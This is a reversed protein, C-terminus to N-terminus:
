NLKLQELYSYIKKAREIDKSLKDIYTELASALEELKSSYTTYFSYKAKELEALICPDELRPYLKNLENFLKSTEKYAEESSIEGRSAKKFIKDAKEIINYAKESLELAEDESGAEALYRYWQLKLNFEREKKILTKLYEEASDAIEVSVEGITDILSITERSMTEMFKSYMADGLSVAAAIASIFKGAGLSLVTLVISAVFKINDCISKVKKKYHCEEIFREMNSEASKAIGEAVKKEEIVREYIEKLREKQRILKELPDEGDVEILVSDTISGDVGQIGSDYIECKLLIFCPEKPAIYAISQGCKTVLFGGSDNSELSKAEWYFGVWDKFHLITSTSKSKGRCWVKLVDVDEGEAKFVTLQRPKLKFLTLCTRGEKVLDKVKQLINIKNEVTKLRDKLFLYDKYKRKFDHYIYSLDKISEYQLLKNLLSFYKEKFDSVTHLKKKFERLSYALILVLPADFHSVRHKLREIEELLYDVAEKVDERNQPDIIKRYKELENLRYLLTKKEYDLESLRKDIYRLSDKQSLKIPNVIKGEIPTYPDWKAFPECERSVKMDRYCAEISSLLSELEKLKRKEEQPLKSLAEEIRKKRWEPKACKSLVQMVKEYVRLLGRLSNVLEQIEKWIKPSEKVWDNYNLALLYQIKNKLQDRVYEWVDGLIGEFFEESVDVKVGARKACELFDRYDRIGLQELYYKTERALKGLSNLLPQIKEIYIEIARDKANTYSKPEKEKTFKVKDKYGACKAGLDRVRLPDIISIEIVKRYPKSDLEEVKNEKDDVVLEIKAKELVWRSINSSPPPAVYIVSPGEAENSHIHPAGAPSIFYGPGELIRWKYVCNQPLPVEKIALEGSKPCPRCTVILSDVNKATAVLPLPGGAPAVIMTGLFVEVVKQSSYHYTACILKSSPYDVAIFGRKYSWCLCCSKERKKWFYIVGGLGGITVIILGIATYETESVVKIQVSTDEQPNIEKEYKIGKHEVVIKHNGKPLYIEKVGSIKIKKETGNNFKIIVVADKIPQNFYNKLDIKVKYISCPVEHKGPESVEFKYEEPPTIDSGKWFVKVITYNGEDLWVFPETIKLEEGTEKKLIVYDPEIVIRKGIDTFSFSVKYQKVWKAYITKPSDMVIKVQPNKSEISGSWGSFLLRTNKDLLIQSVINVEAVTSKTYWGEGTPQGYKSVIKLYYQYVYIPKILTDKVVNITRIERTYGDAWKTFILRTGPSVVITKPVEIEHTGERLMVVGRRYKKGDIIIWSNEPIDLTVSYEKPFSYCSVGKDPALDGITTKVLVEGIFQSIDHEVFVKFCVKDEVKIENLPITIEVFKESYKISYLAETGVKTWGYKWVSKTFEWKKKYSNFYVSYMTDGPTLRNNCNNESVGDSDLSITYSLYNGPNSSIPGNLHIKFTLFNETRKVEVAVIDVYGKYTSAKSLTYPNVLDKTSDKLTFPTQAQLLATFIILLLIILPYVYKNM